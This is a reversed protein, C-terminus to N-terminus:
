SCSVRTHMHTLLVEKSMWTLGGGHWLIAGDGASHTYRNTQVHMHVCNLSAQDVGKEEDHM